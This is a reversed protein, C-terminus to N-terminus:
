LYGETCSAANKTEFAKWLNRTHFATNVFGQWLVNGHARYLENM